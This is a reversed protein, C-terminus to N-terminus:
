ASLLILQACYALINNPSVVTHDRTFLPQGVREWFVCELPYSYGLNFLMKFLASDIVMVLGVQLVGLSGARIDKSPVTKAM